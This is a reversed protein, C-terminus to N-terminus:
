EEGRLGSVLYVAVDTQEPDDANYSLRAVGFFGSKNVPFMAIILEGDGDNAGGIEGCAIIPSRSDLREHVVVAHPEDILVDLPRAVTRNATEAEVAVEQGVHPGRAIVVPYLRTDEGKLDTCIGHEIVAWRFIPPPEGGLSPQWVITFSIIPADGGGPQIAGVEFTQPSNLARYGVPLSNQDVAVTVTTNPPVGEVGCSAGVGGTPAYFFKLSCSGIFRGSELEITVLVADAPACIADPNDRPNVDCLSGGISIVFTEKEQASVGIGSLSALMVLSVVATVIRRSKV